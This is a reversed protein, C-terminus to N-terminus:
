QKANPRVSPRNKVLWLMGVVAVLLQQNVTMITM